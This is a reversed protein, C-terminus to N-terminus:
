FEFGLSRRLEGPDRGEDRLQALSVAGHRKAMRVGDDDQLLRHHDYEPTPLDLLAQLLRHVHTAAFLDAGRTVHSVGQLADDVTVALHYSTPTEKRALVVDGHLGPQLYQQGSQRDYWSLDGAIMRAARACDLRVAFAAGAAVRDRRETLSLSRCIGPYLAGDPGHPASPAAAIERAIDKRTCFCPYTLGADSLKALAAAYDDMHESQRRVPQEWTLGLWALDALMAAEHEPRCRGQDIDEVRLLFSGDMQRARDFAYLASYGNGLHLAGTPSPAFRFIPM